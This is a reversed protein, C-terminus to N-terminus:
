QEAKGSLLWCDTISPDFYKPGYYNMRKANQAKHHRQIVLGHDAVFAILENRSVKLSRGMDQQTAKLENLHHIMRIREKVEKDTM